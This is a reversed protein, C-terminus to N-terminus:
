SASRRQLEADLSAGLTTELFLNRLLQIDNFELESLKYENIVVLDSILKDDSVKIAKFYQDTLWTTAETSLKFRSKSFIGDITERISGRLQKLGEPTLEKSSKIVKSLQLELLQFFRIQRDDNM